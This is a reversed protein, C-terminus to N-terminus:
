QFLCYLQSGLVSLKSNYTFLTSSVRLGLCKTYCKVAAAFNGNKFEENGREREFTEPDINSPETRAKAVPISNSPINSPVIMAPTLRTTDKGKIEIDLNFNIVSFYLSLDEGYNEDFNEWKKYGVDYTHKAASEVSSNVPSTISVSNSSSKQAKEQIRKDKVKIEKEWKSLDAFYASVEEANNRIQNQVQLTNNMVSKNSKPSSYFTKRNQPLMSISCEM